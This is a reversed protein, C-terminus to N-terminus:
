AEKKREISWNDIGENLFYVNVISRSRELIKSLQIIFNNFAKEKNKAHTYLVHVECYWNFMGRFLMIRRTDRTNTDVINLSQIEVVEPDSSVQWCNNDKRCFPCQRRTIIGKATTVYKAHSRFIKGCRCHCTDESGTFKAWDINSM